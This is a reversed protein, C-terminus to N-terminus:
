GRDAEERKHGFVTGIYPLDPRCGSVDMGFYNTALDLWEAGCGEHRDYGCPTEHCKEDYLATKGCESCYSESRNVIITPRMMVAM